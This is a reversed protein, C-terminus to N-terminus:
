PASPRHRMLHPVLGLLFLLGVVALFYFLRPVPVIVLLWAAVAAAALARAKAAFAIGRLEERRLAERLRRTTPSVRARVAKRWWRRGTSLPLSTGIGGAAVRGGPRM